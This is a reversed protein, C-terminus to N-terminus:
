NTYISWISSLMMCKWAGIKLSSRIIWIRTLRSRVVHRILFIFFCVSSASHNFSRDRQMNARRLQILQCCNSTQLSKTATRAASYAIGYRKIFIRSFHIPITAFISYNHKNFFNLLSGTNGKSDDSDYIWDITILLRTILYINYCNCFNGRNEEVWLNKILLMKGAPISKPFRSVRM